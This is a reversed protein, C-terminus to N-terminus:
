KLVTDGKQIYAARFVKYSVHQKCSRRSMRPAPLRCYPDNEVFWNVYCFLLYNISQSLNSHMNKPSAPKHNM